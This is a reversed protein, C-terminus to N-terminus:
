PAINPDAPAPLPLTPESAPSVIVASPPLTEAASDVGPRKLQSPIGPLPTVLVDPLPAAVVRIQDTNAAGVHGNRDQVRGHRTPTTKTVGLRPQMTESGKPVTTPKANPLNLSRAISPRGFVQPAGPSQNFIQALARQSSLGALGLLTAGLIALGIIHTRPMHSDIFSERLKYAAMIKEVDDGALHQRLQSVALRRKRGSPYQVLVTSETEISFTAIAQM